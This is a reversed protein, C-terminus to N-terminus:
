GLRTNVINNMGKQNTSLKSFKKKKYFFFMEWLTKKPIKELM